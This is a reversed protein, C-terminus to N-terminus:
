LVVTRINPPEFLIGGTACDNPCLILVESAKGGRIKIVDVPYADCGRCKHVEAISRVM